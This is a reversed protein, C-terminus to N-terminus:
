GQWFWEIIKMKTSIQLWERRGVKAWFSTFSKLLNWSSWSVDRISSFWIVRRYKQEGRIAYVFVNLNIWEVLSNVNDYDLWKSFFFFAWVFWYGVERGLKSYQFYAVSNGYVASATLVYLPLWIRCWKYMYRGAFRILIFIPRSMFM